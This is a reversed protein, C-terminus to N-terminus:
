LQCDDSESETVTVDSEQLSAVNSFHVHLIITPILYENICLILYYRSVYYNFLQYSLLLEWIASYNIAMKLTGFDFKEQPTNGGSGVVVM